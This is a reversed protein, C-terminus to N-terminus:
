IFHEKFKPRKMLWLSGPQQQAEALAALPLDNFLAKITLNKKSNDTVLYVSLVQSDSLLELRVLWKFM